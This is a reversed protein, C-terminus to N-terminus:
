PSKKAVFTDLTKQGADFAASGIGGKTRALGALHEVCNMREVTAQLGSPFPEAARTQAVLSGSPVPELLCELYGTNRWHPHGGDTPLGYVPCNAGRLKAVLARLMHGLTMGHAAVVISKEAGNGDGLLEEIAPFLHVDLFQDVRRLVDEPTEPDVWDDSVHPVPKQWPLGELSGFCTERVEALKTVEPVGM